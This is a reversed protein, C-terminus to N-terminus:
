LMIEWLCSVRHLHELQHPPGALQHRPSLGLARSWYGLLSAAAAGCGLAAQACYEASPMLKKRKKKPHLELLSSTGKMASCILHHLCLHKLCSILVIVAAQCDHMASHTQQQDPHKTSKLSGKWQEHNISRPRRCKDSCLHSGPMSLAHVSARHVCLATGGKM